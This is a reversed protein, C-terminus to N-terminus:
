YLTCVKLHWAQRRLHAPPYLIVPPQVTVPQAPARASVTGLYKLVVNDVDAGAIDGVINIEINSPHLQAMVAERMGELTLAEIEGPNPDRFRRHLVLSSWSHGQLSSFICNGSESCIDSLM